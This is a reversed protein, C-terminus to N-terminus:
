YKANLPSHISIIDCQSLIRIWSKINLNTVILSKLVSSYYYVDVGFPEQLAKAVSKGISECSRYNGM